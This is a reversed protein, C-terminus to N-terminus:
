DVACDLAYFKNMVILEAWSKQFQAACEHYKRDKSFERLRKCPTLANNHLFFTKTYM